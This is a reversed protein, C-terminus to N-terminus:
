AGWTGVVAPSSFERSDEGFVSGEHGGADEAGVLGDGHADIDDASKDIHALSEEGVELDEFLEGLKVAGEEVM